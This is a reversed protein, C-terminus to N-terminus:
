GPPEVNGILIMEGGRIQGNRWNKSARPTWESTTAALHGIRTVPRELCKSERIWIERVAEGYKKMQESVKHSSFKYRIPQYRVSVYTM